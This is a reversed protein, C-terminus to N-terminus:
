RRKVGGLATSDSTGRKHLDQHALRRIQQVLKQIVHGRVNRGRHRARHDHIFCVCARHGGQLLLKLDTNGTPRPTDRHVANNLIRTRSEANM